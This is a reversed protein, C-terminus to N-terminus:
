FTGSFIKSHWDHDDVRRKEKKRGRLNSFLNCIRLVRVGQLLNSLITKIKLGSQTEEVTPMATVNTKRTLTKNVKTKQKTKTYEISQFIKNHM